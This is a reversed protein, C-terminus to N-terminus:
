KVEIFEKKVFGRIPEYIAVWERDKTGVDIKVRDNDSLVGAVTADGSPGSRVNLRTCGKLKAPILRKRSKKTEQVFEDM